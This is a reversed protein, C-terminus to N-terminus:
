KQGQLRRLKQCQLSKAYWPDNTPGIATQDFASQNCDITNLSMSDSAYRPSLLMSLEWGTTALSERMRDISPDMGSVFPEGKNAVAQLPVTDLSPHFHPLHIHVWIGRMAGAEQMIALAISLALAFLKNRSRHFTMHVHRM